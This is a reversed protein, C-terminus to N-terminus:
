RPASWVGRSAFEKRGVGDTFEFLLTIMPELQLPTQGFRHAVVERGVMIHRGTPILREGDDAALEIGEVVRVLSLEVGGSAGRVLRREHVLKECATEAGVIKGIARVHAVLRGADTKGFADTDAFPRHEEVVERMGLRDEDDAM